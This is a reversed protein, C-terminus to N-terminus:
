EASLPKRSPSPPERMTETAEGSSITADPDAVLSAMAMAGQAPAAANMTLRGAPAATALDYIMIEEGDAGRFHLAIRSGDLAMTALQMGLPPEITAGSAFATAEARAPQELVDSAVARTAAAVDERDPEGVLAASAIIAAVFLLPAIVALFMAVRRRSDADDAIAGDDGPVHNGGGEGGGSAEIIAAAKDRIREAISPAVIADRGLLLEGGQNAM